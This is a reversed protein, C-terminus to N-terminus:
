ALRPPGPPGLQRAHLDGRGHRAVPDAAPARVARARRPPAADAGAAAGRAAHRHQRRAGDADRGRRPDRGHPRQDHDQGQHRHHRRHAGPLPAPLPRGRQRRARSGRGGAPRARCSAAARDDPLPQQGVALHLRAGARCPGRSPRGGAGAADAGPPGRARRACRALEDAPARRLRDGRSGPRGPLAGPRDRQTGAGARRGPPRRVLGSRAHRPRDSRGHDGDGRERRTDAPRSSSSWASWPRSCAWSGSACRSRRRTGAWCSSTTISRRSDPLRPPRLDQREAGPHDGLGDRGRLHDRDAAAAPDPRHHAGHGGADGGALAGGLRGHLDAGPPRQVLPLRAARRHDARM